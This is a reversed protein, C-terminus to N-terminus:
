GYIQVTDGGAAAGTNPLISLVQPGYSFADPALALWGSPFYAALNLTGSLVNPPSVAQIQTTGAISISTALHTGFKLQASSEFNQVTLSSSTGGVNPGESPQATPAAAFAPVVSPLALPKSTDIFSVGRNAIGFLLQTEDADEIGTPVGQIAADAVQGIPQLNQGDFVAIAPPAATQSVYLFKGDRSFTLGRASVSVPAGVTDLSGGLLFLQLSAGSALVAAFRSGDSNAAVLSIIGSGVTHSALIRGSSDLLAVAGSSDSAAVLVRTDDATRAM